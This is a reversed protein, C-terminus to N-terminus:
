LEIIDIDGGAREQIKKQALAEQEKLVQARSAAEESQVKDGATSHAKALTKWIGSREPALEAAKQLAHIADAVEKQELLLLGLNLHADVLGPDRVLAEEYAHRAEEKKGGIRLTVGHYFWLLANDPVNEVGHSAITGALESKGKSIRFHCLTIHASANEPELRLAFEFAKLATEDNDGQIFLKGNLIHLAASNPRLSLARKMAKHAAPLKGTMSYLVALNAHGEAFNFNTNVARKLCQEAETYRGQTANVAALAALGEPFDSEALDVAKRAAKEAEATHGARLLAGSHAAHAAPLRSDLEVAKSAVRLAEDHKELALLVSGLAAWAEAQNPALDVAKRLASEAAELKGIKHFARGLLLHAHTYDADLETAAKLAQIADDFREEGFLLEGKSFRCRANSADDAIAKDYHRLAADSNGLRRLINGLFNHLSATFTM